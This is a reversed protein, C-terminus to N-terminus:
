KRRWEVWTRPKSENQRESQHELDQIQSAAAQWVRKALDTMNQPLQKADFWGVEAIEVPSASVGDPNGYATFIFVEDHHFSHYISTPELGRQRDLRTGLEEDAERVAATEPTEGKKVRGGPFAWKSRHMYTHKVLLVRGASFVILQVGATFPRRLFWWAFILPYAVQYILRLSWTRLTM